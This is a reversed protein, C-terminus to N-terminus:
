RRRLVQQVLTDEEENVGRGDVADWARRAEAGVRRELLEGMLARALPSLAVRTAPTNTTAEEFAQDDRQLDAAVVAAVRANGDAPDALLVLTAQTRAFAAAGFAAARLALDGGSLRAALALKEARAFHGRAIAADIDLLSARAKREGGEQDGPTRGLRALAREAADRRVEDHARAAFGLLAEHADIALPDRAVLGDLWRAAEDTRGQREFILALLVVPDSREPDLSIAV